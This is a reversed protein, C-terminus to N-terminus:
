GNSGRILKHLSPRCQECFYEDPTQAEDVLGVCGGHQWVQCNDCQIFFNGTDDSFLDPDAISGNPANEVKVAPKPVGRLANDRSPRPPGPYEPHGCICRTVEEGEPDDLDEEEGKDKVLGDTDADNRRSRRTALTDRSSAEGNDLSDSRQTSSTIPSQLKQHSRTSREARPLSNSSTSSPTHQPASPAPQTTRARSSRRFSM